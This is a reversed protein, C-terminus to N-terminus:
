KESHRIGFVDAEDVTYLGKHTEQCITALYRYRLESSRDDSMSKKFEAATALCDELNFAKGKTILSPTPAQSAILEGTLAFALVTYKM